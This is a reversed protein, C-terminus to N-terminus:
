KIQKWEYNQDLLINKSFSNLFEVNKVQIPIVQKSGSKNIFQNVGIFKCGEFRNYFYVNEGVWYPLRYKENLKFICNSIQIKKSSSNNMNFFSSSTNADIKSELSFKCRDFNLNGKDSVVLYHACNLYQGNYPLDQFECQIFQTSKSKMNSSNFIYATGFIKCNNKFILNDGSIHLCSGGVNRDIDHFVCKDFVINKVPATKSDIIMLAAGYNNISKCNKFSGNSCSSYYTKGQYQYPQNPEIDIGASPPDHFKSRGTFNFECNSVILGNGGTWSFGQRGNYEFKSNQINIQDSEGEPAQMDVSNQVIMGDTGFHHINMQDVIINRSNLVKIGYNVLQYTNPCTSCNPLSAIGKDYNTFEGYEYGGQRGDFELQKIMIQKGYICQDIEIISGPSWVQDGFKGFKLNKKFIIRSLLDGNKGIEGEINIHVYNIRYISLAAKPVRNTTYFPDLDYTGKPVKVILSSGQNKPSNYSIIFKTLDQFALYDNDNSNDPTAKNFGKPPNTIDYIFVSNGFVQITIMNGVIILICFIRFKM